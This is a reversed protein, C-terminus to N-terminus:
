GVARDIRVRVKNGSVLAVVDGVYVDNTTTAALAVTNDDVAYVKKGVVAQGVTGSFGYTYTGTKKVRIGVAADAGNTNDASEYAIGAFTRGAQDGGRVLFGTADDVAVMAGAFIKAGAKLNYGILAGSKDCAEYASTLNAM